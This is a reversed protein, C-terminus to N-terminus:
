SKVEGLVNLFLDREEINEIGEVEYIKGKFRIKHKESDFNELYRFVFMLSKSINIGQAVLAEQRRLSPADVRARVTKVVSETDIPIRDSDTGRGYEIIDIVHRLQSSSLNNLKM